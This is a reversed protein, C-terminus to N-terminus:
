GEGGIVKMVDVALEPVELLFNGFTPKAILYPLHKRCSAAAIRRLRGDHTPAEHYICRLAFTLDDIMNHETEETNCRVFQSYEGGCEDCVYFGTKRRTTQDQLAQTGQLCNRCYVHLCSTIYPQDAKQRCACCTTRHSYEEMQGEEVLTTIQAEYKASLATGMPMARFYQEVVGAVYDMLGPLQYKGSVAWLGSYLKFNEWPSDSSKSLDIDYIWQLMWEVADPDDGYLMLEKSHAEQFRGTFAAKFYDSAMSLIVKHAHVQRGAFCIIVDSLVPSNYQKQLMERRLKASTM